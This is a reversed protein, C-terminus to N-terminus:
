PAHKVGLVVRIVSTLGTPVRFALLQNRRLLGGGPASRFLVGLMMVLAIIIETAWGVILVAMESKQGDLMGTRQYM